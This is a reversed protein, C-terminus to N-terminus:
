DESYSRVSYAPTRYFVLEYDIIEKEETAQWPVDDHSYESIKNADYDSLTEIVKDIVEKQRAFLKNIDPEVLALYKKQRKDYYSSLVEQIQGDRKMEKIVEDFNCPAPGHVIKRYAAGTLPEEYKEYYNFDCFYLLKYLVTKGVNPKGGCKTLIYLLVQKFMDKNFPPLKGMQRLKIDEKKRDDESLLEDTSIELIRSLKQLETATVERRGSEIQSVSPRPIGLKRALEEQTLGNEERLKRIKEGLSKKNM